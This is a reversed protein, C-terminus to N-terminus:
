RTKRKIYVSPNMRYQKNFCKTFYSQNNFGVDYMVRAVNNEGHDFLTAAEKLRINRLLENPAYGSVAKVKRYLQRKSMNLEDSMKDANFDANPINERLIETIKQLLQDKPLLLTKELALTLIDQRFKERLKIRQAILNKIRAKLERTDFPKILYDDAGIELGVAKSQWEARATLMIIPIHSTRPDNKLEWCMKMGNMVPMMLDSIILDPILEFAFGLGEKGNGAEICTYENKLHLSIYARLDQNDEVILLVPAETKGPLSVDETMKDQLASLILDQEENQIQKTGDEAAIQEEKEFDSAAVPLSVKFTTGTGPASKVKISGRLLTVLERTHALGLGM